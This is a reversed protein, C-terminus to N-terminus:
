SRHKSLPMLSTNYNKWTVLTHTEKRQKKRLSAQFQFYSIKITTAVVVDLSPHAIVMPSLVIGSVSLAQLANHRDENRLMTTDTNESQYWRRICSRDHLPVSPNPM